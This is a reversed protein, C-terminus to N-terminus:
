AKEKPQAPSPAADSEFGFDMQRSDVEPQEAVSGPEPTGPAASPVAPASQDESAVTAPIEGPTPASSTQHKPAAVEDLAAAVPATAEAAVKGLDTEVKDVGERFSSELQRAQQEVQQQLKKLEELQMERQIDSKVDSVYRQFRGLLHGVTRAVKPLREPGVVILTVVAIVVIESFGLDFM